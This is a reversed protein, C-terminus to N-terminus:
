SSPMRSGSTISNLRTSKRDRALRQHGVLTEGAKALDAGRPDGRWLVVRDQVQKRVSRLREVGQTLRTLADRLDLAFRLQEALESIPLADHLSLTSCAITSPVL